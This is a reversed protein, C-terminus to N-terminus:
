IELKLYRFKPLHKKCVSGASTRLTENNNSWFSCIMGTKEDNVIWSKCTACVNLNPGVNKFKPSSVGGCNSCWKVFPFVKIMKIGCCYGLQYQYYSDELNEIDIKEDNINEMNETWETVKTM